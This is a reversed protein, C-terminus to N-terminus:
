PLVVEHPISRVLDYDLCPKDYRTLLENLADTLDPSTDALTGDLDFLVAKVNSSSSM